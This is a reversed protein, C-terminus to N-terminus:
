QGLYARYDALVKTLAAKGAESKFFGPLEFLNQSLWEQQSVTLGSGIAVRLKVLFDKLM